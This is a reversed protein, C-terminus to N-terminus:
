LIRNVNLALRLLGIAGGQYAVFSDKWQPEFKRKYQKIGNSHVFWDLREFIQNVTKETITADPRNGIGVFPAVGFNFTRYNGNKMIVMMQAFLYDMIGWHLGPLHRMMDFSAEDPRYSPVENIFAIMAGSKERIVYQTCREMYARDFHGQFFGYERHHPMTLWQRSVREVEDLLLQSIPPKYREMRYGEGELKRRVYRFYKSEYTHRTFHELDVVAEEGIKLLSLGLLKYTSPDDPMMVAALWGNEKCFSLFARIVAERDGDPGVPDALCFAVGGVMRYSIFSEHNPSFFFSKDPWVKFFDFTSKGYKELIFTARAREQPFEVLRYVIPRFLSYIAFSGAVIGLIDLSQLFWRAQRSAAVLDSNGILLFQRLSRVLGGQLSFVIGFDRKDLMWFGITGYLLAIFISGLLLLFGMRINRSESRVSFRDRFVILLTFAATQPLAGYWIRLQFIHAIIELGSAFVALWWAARRRQFLHFSLYVLIFGVM